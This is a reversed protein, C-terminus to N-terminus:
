DFVREFAALDEASAYARFLTRALVGLNQHVEDPTQNRLPLVVAEVVSITARAMNDLDRGLAFRGAAEGRHLVERIVQMSADEFGRQADALAETELRSPVLWYGAVGHKVRPDQVLKGLGVFLQAIAVVPDETERMRDFIYHNFLAHLQGLCDLFLADKGRFHWYLAGKSIKVAKAIDGVSVGEYGFRGFLRFGQDRIQQLTDTQDSAPKRPM